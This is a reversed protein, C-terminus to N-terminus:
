RVRSTHFHSSPKSSPSVGTPGAQSTVRPSSPLLVLVSSTAPPLHIARSSAILTARSFSWSRSRSSYCEPTMGSCQGLRTNGAHDVQDLWTLSTVFKFTRVTRRATVAQARPVATAPHPLEPTLRTEAGGRSLRADPVFGWVRSPHVAHM